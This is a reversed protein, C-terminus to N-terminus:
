PFTHNKHPGLGMIYDPCLYGQQLVLILQRQCVWTVHQMVSFACTSPRETHYVQSWALNVVSWISLRWNEAVEGANLRGWRFKAGRNPTVRNSNQWPKSCWFVLTEASDQPVTQKIRCNAMWCLVSKHGPSLSVGMGLPMRIWGVMQGCYVLTVPLCSLCFLCCYCLM